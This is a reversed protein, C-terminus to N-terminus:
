REDSNETKDTAKSDEASDVKNELENLQMLLLMSLEKQQDIASLVRDIERNFSNVPPPLFKKFFIRIREKKSPNSPITYPKHCLEFQKLLNERYMERGAQSLRANSWYLTETEPSIITWPKPEIAFHHLKPVYPIQDKWFPLCSLDNLSYYEEIIHNWALPLFCIDDHYMYNVVDQDQFSWDHSLAIKMTGELSYRKRMQLLNLLLVGDNVYDENASLHLIDLRYRAEPGTLENYSVASCADRVAGISCYGLNIDYLEAADASLLIDCDFYIVRTYESLVYPIFLRYYAAQPIRLKKQTSFNNGAITSSIEIDRFSINSFGKTELSVKNLLQKNLGCHLLIIEYTRTHSAHRIISNVAACLPNIVNQDACFVITVPEITAM